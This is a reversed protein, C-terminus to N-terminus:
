NGKVLRYKSKETSLTPYDYHELLEDLCEFIFEVHWNDANVAMVNGDFEQVIIMVFDGNRFTHGSKDM